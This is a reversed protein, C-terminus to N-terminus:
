KKKEPQIVIRVRKKATGQANIQASSINYDIREGSLERDPRSLTAGGLLSLKSEIPRYIIQKASAKLPKGDNDTISYLLPKGKGQVETIEGNKLQLTILDASIRMSGQVIQVNGSLTHQQKGND